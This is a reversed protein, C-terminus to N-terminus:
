NARIDHFIGETINFTKGNIDMATGEFTGSLAHTADLVSNVVKIKKFLLTGKCDPHDIISLTSESVGISLPNYFFLIKNNKIEYSKNESIELEGIVQISSKNDSSSAGLIFSKEVDSYVCTAGFNLFVEKGDLKFKIYSKDTPNNQNSESEKSCSILALVSPFIIILLIHYLFNNRKM